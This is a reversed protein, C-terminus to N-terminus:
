SFLDERLIAAIIRPWSELNSNYPWWGGFSSCGVSLLGLVALGAAYLSVKLRKVM